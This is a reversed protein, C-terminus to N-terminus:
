SKLKVFIELVFTEDNSDSCPFKITTWLIPDSWLEKVHEIYDRITIRPIDSIISIPLNNVAVKLVDNGSPEFSINSYGIPNYDALDIAAKQFIMYTVHYVYPRETEAKEAKSKIFKCFDYLQNSLKIALYRYNIDEDRLQIECILMLSDIDNHDYHPYVKKVFWLEEFAAIIEKYNEEKSEGMNESLKYEIVTSFQKTDKHIKENNIASIIQNLFENSVEEVKTDLGFVFNEGNYLHNYYHVHSFLKKIAEFYQKEHITIFIFENLVEKVCDIVEENTFNNIYSIHDAVTDPIDGYLIASMLSKYSSSPKEVIEQPQDTIKDEEPIPKKDKNLDINEEKQEEQNNIILNCRCIFQSIEGKDYVPQVSSVFWLDSLADKVDNVKIVEMHEYPDNYNIVYPIDLAIDLITDPDTKCNRINILIHNVFDKALKYRANVCIDPSRFRQGKQDTASNRDQLIERLAINYAHNVKEMQKELKLKRRLLEECIETKTKFSKEKIIDMSEGPIHGWLTCDLVRQIIEQIENTKVEIM